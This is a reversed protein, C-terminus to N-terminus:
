LLMRKEELEIRRAAEEREFHLRERLYEYKASPDPITHEIAQAISDRVASLKERKCPKTSRRSGVPTARKRGVNDKAGVTQPEAPSSTCQSDHGVREADSTEIGQIKAREMTRDQETKEKWNDMRCVIDELM